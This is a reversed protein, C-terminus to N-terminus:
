NTKVNHKNDNKIIENIQLVYHKKKSKPVRFAIVVTNENFKNPRGLKKSKINM